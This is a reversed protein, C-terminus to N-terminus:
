SPTMAPRPFAARSLSGGRSRVRALMWASAGNVVIAGLSALVLPVVDPAVPARRRGVPRGPRVEIAGRSQVVTKQRARSPTSGRVEADNRVSHPPQLSAM